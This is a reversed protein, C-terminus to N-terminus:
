REGIEERLEEPSNFHDFRFSPKVSHASPLPSEDLLLRVLDKVVARSPSIEFM